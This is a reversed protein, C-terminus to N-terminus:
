RNRHHSRTAEWDKWKKGQDILGFLSQLQGSERLSRNSKIKIFMSEDRKPLWKLQRRRHRGRRDSPSPSRDGGQDV